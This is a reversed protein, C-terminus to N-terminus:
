ENWDFREGCFPVFLFKSMGIELEDYAQLKRSDVLMEGNLYISNRSDGSSFFFINKRSDFSIVAAKESSIYSDGQICIDMSASRGIKNYGNHIRYDAGKSPGDVCVLWGVVPNMAACAEAAGGKVIPVPMTPAYSQVGGANFAPDAYPIFGGAMPSPETPPVTGEPSNPMTPPLTEMGGAGPYVPQTASYGEVGAGGGRMEEACQPCSAYMNPDYFHGKGCSVYEM